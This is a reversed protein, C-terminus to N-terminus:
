RKKLSNNNQSNNDNKSSVEHEDWLVKVSKGDPGIEPKGDLGIKKKFINGADVKAAILLDYSGQDDPAITYRVEPGNIYGVADICAETHPSQPLYSIKSLNPEKQEEKKEPWGLTIEGGNIHKYIVNDGAQPKGEEFKSSLLEDVSVKSLNIEITKKQPIKEERKEEWNKTKSIPPPSVIKTNQSNKEEKKIQSSPWAKVYTVSDLHQDITQQNSYLAIQEEVTTVKKELSGNKQIENNVQPAGGTGANDAAASNVFLNANRDNSLDKIVKFMDEKVLRFTIGNIKIGSKLGDENCKLENCYVESYLDYMDGSGCYTINKLDTFATMNIAEIQGRVDTEVRVRKQDDPVQTAYHGSGVIPSVYHTAGNENGVNLLGAHLAQQNKLYEKVKLTNQNDFFLKYDENTKERFNPYPNRIISISIPDQLPEDQNEGDYFLEVNKTVSIFDKALHRKLNRTKQKKDPQMISAGSRPQMLEAADEESMGNRLYVTTKQKLSLGKKRRDEALHKTKKFYEIQQALTMNM